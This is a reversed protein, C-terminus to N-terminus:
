PIRCGDVFLEARQTSGAETYATASFMLRPRYGPTPPIALALRESYWLPQTTRAEIRPLVTEFRQHPPYNSMHPAIGDLVSGMQVMVGVEYDAQTADQMRTFATTSTDLSM